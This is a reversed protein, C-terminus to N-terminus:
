QLAPLAILFVSNIQDETRSKQSPCNEDRLATPTKASIEYISGVIIQLHTPHLRERAEDGCTDIATDRRLKICVGFGRPWQRAKLASITPDIM